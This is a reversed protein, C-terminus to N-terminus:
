KEISKSGLVDSTKRYQEFMSGVRKRQCYVWPHVFQMKKTHNAVILWSFQDPSMNLFRTLEKDQAQYQRLCKRWAFKPFSHSRFFSKGLTVFGCVPRPVGFRIVVSFLFFFSLGFFAWYFFHDRKTKQSFFKLVVRSFLDLM